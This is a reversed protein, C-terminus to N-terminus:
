EGLSLEFDKLTQHVPKRILRDGLPKEDAGVCDSEMDVIDVFLKVDPGAGLKHRSGDLVLELLGVEYFPCKTECSYM